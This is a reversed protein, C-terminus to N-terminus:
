TSPSKLILLLGRHAKCSASTLTYSATGLIVGSLPFMGAAYGNPVNPTYLTQRRHRHQQGTRQLSARSCVIIFLATRLAGCTGCRWSIEHGARRGLGLWLM